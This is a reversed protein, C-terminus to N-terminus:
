NDYSQWLPTEIWVSSFPRQSLDIFEKRNTQSHPYIEANTLFLKWDKYQLAVHILLAAFSPFYENAPRTDFLTRLAVNSPSSKFLSLMVVLRASEGATAAM